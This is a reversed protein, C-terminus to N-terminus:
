KWLIVENSLDKCKDHYDNATMDNKPLYSPTNNQIPKNKKNDQNPKKPKLASDNDLMKALEPTNSILRNAIEQM